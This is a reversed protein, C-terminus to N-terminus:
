TGYTACAPEARAAFVGHASGIMMLSCGDADSHLSPSIVLAFHLHM